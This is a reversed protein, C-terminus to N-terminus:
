PRTKGEEFGRQYEQELRGKFVKAIYDVFAIASENANGEFALGDGNFDLRGIEENGSNHFILTYNPKPVEFKKIQSHPVHCEAGEYNVKYPESQASM